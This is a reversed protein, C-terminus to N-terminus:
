AKEQHELADLVREPEVDCRVEDMDISRPDIELKEAIRAVLDALKSLEHEALLNIHLDLDARTDAAAAQRNQSILVFTSLFIAEVSAIMALVVFSPDFKPSGYLNWGIWGGFLILHLVVFVMSGTFGTIRDALRDSLPAAAVERRRREALREINETLTATIGPPASTM